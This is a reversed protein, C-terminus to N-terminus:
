RSLQAALQVAREHAAEETGVQYEFDRTFPSVKVKTFKWGDSSQLLCAPVNKELPELFLVKKKMAGDRDESGFKAKAWPLLAAVLAESARVPEPTFAVWAGHVLKVQEVPSLALFADEANKKAKEAATTAAIAKMADTWKKGRKTGPLISAFWALFSM